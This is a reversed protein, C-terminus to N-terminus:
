WAWFIGPESWIGETRRFMKTVSHMNSMRTANESFIFYSIYFMLYSVNFYSLIFSSLHFYSFLFIFCLFMFVYFCFLIVFYSCLLIVFYCSLFAVSYSFWFILFHSFLFISFLFYPFLSIRFDSFWFIRCLFLVTSNIQISGAVETVGGLGGIGGVYGIVSLWLRDCVIAALWLWDCEVLLCKYLEFSRESWQYVEQEIFCKGSPIWVTWAHQMKSFIRYSMHFIFCWAHFMLYSIHFKWIHYSSHPFSSL